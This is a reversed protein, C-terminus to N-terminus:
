AVAEEIRAPALPAGLILNAVRRASAPEIDDPVSQGTTIYSLRLDFARLLNLIVGISVAEDLKTLLLQCQGVTSFSRIAEKLTEERSTASLVLHVQDPKAIELFKALEGIRSEDRQSRGATDILVLDMDAMDELARTMESPEVVATLPAKLIQAYTKLQEVAAIRYTDITILGVRKGERLRAHAALKAITTTKGVGTPGILAVVAPGTKNPERKMTLPESVLSAIADVLRSRLEDPAPSRTEVLRGNADWYPTVSERTSRDVQRVLDAAIEDAVHQSILRTYEDLLRAPVDDKASMTKGTPADNNKQVLDRVMARIESLEARLNTDCKTEPAARLPSTPAPSEDQVAAARLAPIRPDDAATIQVYTRAGIGWLGGRRISRTHLIVAAPGLDTKVRALAETMTPAQYTKLQM